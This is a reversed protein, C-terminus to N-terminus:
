SLVESEGEGAEEDLGQPEDGLDRFYEAFRSIIQAQEELTFHGRALDAVWELHLQNFRKAWKEIHGEVSM